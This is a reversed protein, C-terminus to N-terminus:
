GLYITTGNLAVHKAEISVSLTKLEAKTTTLSLRTTDGASTRLTVGAGDVQVEAGDIAVTTLLAAGRVAGLRVADEKAVMRFGNGGGAVVVAGVKGHVFAQQVLLQGHRDRFELADGVLAVCGGDPARIM